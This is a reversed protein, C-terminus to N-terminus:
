ERAIFSRHIQAPTSTVIAHPPSSEGTSVSSADDDPLTVVLLVPTDVEDDVDSVCVVLESDPVESDPLVPDLPSDPGDDEDSDLVDSPSTHM